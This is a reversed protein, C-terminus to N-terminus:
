AGREKVLAAIALRAELPIAEFLVGSGAPLSVMEGGDERPIECPGTRRWMSWGLVSVQGVKELPFTFALRSLLPVPTGSIFAGNSSLDRVVGPFKQGVMDPAPRVREYVSALNPHLQVDRQDIVEVLTPINAQIRPASRREPRSVAM